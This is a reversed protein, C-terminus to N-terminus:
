ASFLVDAEGALYLVDMLSRPIGDETHIRRLEALTLDFGDRLHGDNWPTGMLLVGMDGHPLRFAIIYRASLTDAAKELYKCAAQDIHATSIEWCRSYSGTEFRLRRIIERAQELTAADALNSPSAKRKPTSRTALPM